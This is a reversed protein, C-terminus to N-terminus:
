SSSGPNDKSRLQEGLKTLQIQLSEIQQLTEDGGQNPQSEPDGHKAEEMATLVIGIVLNLLIFAALVVYSLFYFIAFPSIQTAEALYVPFNELTLLIFLTLMSRAITGWHEQLESGWLSWGIMGYVFILLAILVVMSLVSPIAIAVTRLLVRAEPLFRILRVVRALRLMRLITTQPGIFPLLPGLVVVFDFVNWGERFFALPRRGYSAFRLALEIVYIGYFLMAARDLQVGHLEYIDPFTELAFTIANCVIVLAIFLNFKPADVLRQLSKVRYSAADGQTTGDDVSSTRDMARSLVENM